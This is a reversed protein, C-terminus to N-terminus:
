KKEVPKEENTNKNKTGTLLRWYYSFLDKVSVFDEKYIVGAGQTQAANRLQYRDITHNYGKLRLNGSANLLYQIDVDSIFRNTNTMLIDNRYGINGNVIWRNNPQYLIQAQYDSSQVDTQRYDIGM